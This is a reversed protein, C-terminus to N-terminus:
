IVKIAQLQNASLFKVNVIFCDFWSNTIILSLFYGSVFYGSAKQLNKEVHMYAANQQM